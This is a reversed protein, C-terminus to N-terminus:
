RQGWEYGCSTCTRIVEFGREDWRTLPAPPQDTLLSARIKQIHRVVASPPEPPAPIPERIPHVDCCGCWPCMAGATFPGGDRQRDPATM